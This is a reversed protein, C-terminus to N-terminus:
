DEGKLNALLLPPVKGYLMLRNKRQDLSIGSLTDQEEIRASYVIQRSIKSLVTVNRPYLYVIHFQTVAFGLPVVNEVLTDGEKRLYSASELSKNKIIYENPKSYSAYYFGYENM